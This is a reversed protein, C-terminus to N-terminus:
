LSYIILYANSEERQDLLGFRNEFTKRETPCLLISTGYKAKTLHNKKVLLQLCASHGLILINKDSLVECPRDDM